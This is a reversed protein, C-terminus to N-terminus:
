SNRGETKARGIFWGGVPLGVRRWGYSSRGQESRLSYLSERVSLECRKCVAAIWQSEPPWVAVVCHNTHTHKHTHTDTHTHTDIHTHLM